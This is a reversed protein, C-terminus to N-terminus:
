GGFRLLAAAALLAAAVAAVAGLFRAEFSAFSFLMVASWSVSIRSAKVRNAMVSLGSWSSFSPTRFVSSTRRQRIARFVGGEEEASNDSIRSATSGSSLPITV